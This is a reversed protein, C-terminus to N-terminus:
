GILGCPTGFATRGEDEELCAMKQRNNKLM